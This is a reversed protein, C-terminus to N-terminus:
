HKRKTTQLHNYFSEDPQCPPFPKSSHLFQGKVHM